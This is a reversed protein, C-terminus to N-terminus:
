CDARVHDQDYHSIVIYDIKTYGKNLIYPILTSKGVDFSNSKSGGGDILITKNKPTIIFTCDGQGVDVFNISMKSTPINIIYVLSIIILVVIKRNRKKNLMYRYKMLAILNKIRRQTQNLSKSNYIYFIFNFFLLILM